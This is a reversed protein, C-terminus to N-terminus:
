LIQPSSSSVQAKNHILHVVIALNEAFGSCSGGSEVSDSQSSCLFHVSPNSLQCCFSWKTQAVFIWTGMHKHDPTAHSLVFIWQIRLISYQFHLTLLIKEHLFFLLWFVPKIFNPSHLLSSSTVTFLLFVNGYVPPLLGQCPGTQTPGSWSNLRGTNVKLHRHSISM